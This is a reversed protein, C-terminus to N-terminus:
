IYKAYHNEGKIFFWLGGMFILICSFAVYYHYYPIPIEYEALLQSGGPILERFYIMMGALPNLLFYYKHIGAPIMDMGLFVPNLFFGLRMLITVIDATDRFFTGVSSVIFACGLTMMLYGILWIPLMVTLIPVPLAEDSFFRFIFFLLCYALFGWLFDHIKHLVIATPFVTMPIPHKHILNRNARLCLASAVVSKQFIDWAILGSLVYLAYAISSHRLKVFVAWLVLMFALPELLMWVNGLVKDRHATKLYQGIIQQVIARSDYLKKLEHLLGKRENQTDVSAITTSDM